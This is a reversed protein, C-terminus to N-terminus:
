NKYYFVGSGRPKTRQKIVKTTRFRAIHLTPSVERRLSRLEHMEFLRYRCSQRSHYHSRGRVTKRLTRLCYLGQQLNRSSGKGESSQQVRRFIKRKRSNKKNDKESLGRYMKRMQRMKEAVSRFLREFQSRRRPRPMRRRLQGNRSMGVRM